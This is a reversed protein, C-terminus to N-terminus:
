GCLCWAIAEAAACIRQVAGLTSLVAQGFRFYRGTRSCIAGKGRSDLPSLFCVAIPDSQDYSFM